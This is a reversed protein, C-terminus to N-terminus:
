RSYIKIDMSHFEIADIKQGTQPETQRQSHPLFVKVKTMVKSGHSKSKPM